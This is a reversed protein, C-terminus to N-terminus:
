IRFDSFILESFFEVIADIDLILKNFHLWHM